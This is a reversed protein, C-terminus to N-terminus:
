LLPRGTSWIDATQLREALKRALSQYFRAAVKPKKQLLNELAARSLKLAGGDTLAMVEAGRPTGLLFSLAGLIDGPGLIGLVLKKGEKELSVELYGDAILLIEDNKEDSTPLKEKRSFSLPAMRGILYRTEEYSLDRFLPSDYIDFAKSQAHPPTLLALIDEGRESPRELTWHRAFYARAEPSDPIGVKDVLPLLPSGIRALYERDSLVLCLPVALLGTSAHYFHLAYRRFGLREYYSVLYPACDVFILQSQPTQTALFAAHIMQMFLSSGRYPPSVLARHCISISEQPFTNVFHSLQFNQILEDSFPGDKWSNVALTGVPKEGDYALGLWAYDDGPDSLGDTPNSGEIPYGLEEVFIQYRLQYVVRKEEPTEARVIRFEGSM